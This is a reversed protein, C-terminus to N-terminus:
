LELKGRYVMEKLDFKRRVEIGAYRTVFEVEGEKLTIPDTRSFRFLLTSGDRSAEAKEPYLSEHGRRKLFTAARLEDLREQDGAEDDGSVPSVPMGRVAIMYVSLAAAVKGVSSGGQEAAERALAQRVPLASEWRISASLVGEHGVTASVQTSFIDYTNGLRRDGPKIQVSAARTWPSNALVQSAEEVTWQSYPKSEWFEAASLTILAALCCTPLTVRM